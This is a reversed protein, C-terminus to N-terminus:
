EKPREAQQLEEATFSTKGAALADLIYQKVSDKASVAGQVISKGAAIMAERREKCGGPCPIKM